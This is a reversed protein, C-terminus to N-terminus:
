RVTHYFRMMPGLVSLDGTDFSLVSSVRNHGPLTVLTPIERYQSRLQAYMKAVDAEVSAVDYEGSWLLIPVAKGRYSDILGLPTRAAARKGFYERAGTVERFDGFAGSALIAASIGPGDALQSDEKLLYTAIHTAGVSTGMLVVNTTDGGYPGINNRVWDLLLRIDDAGSPWKATPTLRYNANIGIGGVRAIFRAVNGYVLGDGSEGRKDGRSLEGGHLYVLVVSPETFGGDPVFLDFIQQPDPGYSIDPTVQIGSSDIGRHVDAYLRETEANIEASWNKGLAAVRARIEVLQEAARSPTPPHQAFAASMGFLTVLLSAVLNKPLRSM